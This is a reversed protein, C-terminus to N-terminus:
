SFAAKWRFRKFGNGIGKPIGFIGMFSLRRSRSSLAPRKYLNQGDVKNDPLGRMKCQVDLMAAAARTSRHALDAQSAKASEESTVAAIASKVIELKVGDLKGGRVIMTDDKVTVVTGGAVRRHYDCYCRWDAGADRWRWKQAAPTCAAFFVDSCFVAPHLAFGGPTPQEPGGVFAAARKIWGMALLPRAAVFQAYGAKRWRWSKRSIKEAWSRGFFSTRVDCFVGSM